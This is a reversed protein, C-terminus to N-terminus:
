VDVREVAEQTALEIAKDFVEVVTDISVQSDNYEYVEWGDCQPHLGYIAKKLILECTEIVSTRAEIECGIAGLM